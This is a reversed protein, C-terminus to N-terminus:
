VSMKGAENDRGGIRPAAIPRAGHGHGVIRLFGLKEGSNWDQKAGKNNLNIIPCTTEDLLRQKFYHAYAKTNCAIVFPTNGHFYLLMKQYLNERDTCHVAPVDQFTQYTNIHFTLPVHEEKENLASKLFYFDYDSLTNDAAIVQNTERILWQIDKLVNRRKPNLTDSDYLYQAISHLEDLFLIYKKAFEPDQKM